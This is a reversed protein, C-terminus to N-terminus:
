PIAKLRGRVSQARFGGARRAIVREVALAVGKDGGDGQDPFVFFRHTSGDDDTVICIIGDGTRPLREVRM